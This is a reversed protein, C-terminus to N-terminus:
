INGEGEFELYNKCVYINVVIDKSKKARYAKCIVLANGSAHTRYASNKKKLQKKFKLLSEEIWKNIDDNSVDLGKSFDYFNDPYNIIVKSQSESQMGEKSLADDYIKELSKKIKQFINIRNEVHEIENKIEDISKIKKEKKM